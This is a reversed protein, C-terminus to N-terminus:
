SALEDVRVEIRDVRKSHEELRAVQAAVLISTNYVVRALAALLLVTCAQIIQAVNFEM